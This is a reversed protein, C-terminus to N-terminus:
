CFCGLLEQAAQSALPALQPVSALGVHLLPVLLEQVQAEILLFKFIVDGVPCVQPTSAILVITPVVLVVVILIRGNAWSVWVGEPVSCADVVIIVLAM